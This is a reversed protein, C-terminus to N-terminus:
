HVIIGKFFKSIAAGLDEVSYKIYEEQHSGSRIHSQFLELFSIYAPILYESISIRLEERLNMDPVLWSAQTQYVEEFMANFTKLREKLVRKSVRSSSSGSPYLGEDRFCHFIRDWTSRQYGIVARQVNKTLTELYNNGVMEQLKSCEEITQVIYHVNNMMFLQALSANVLCKSKAELKFQLIEIIWILHVALPTREDLKSFGMDPITVASQVILKAPKSITLKNLKGEYCILQAIYRMVYRTLGNISGSNDLFSSQEHLVTTEFQLLIDRPARTLQMLLEAAQIRISKSSKSQFIRNFDDSLESVSKHFGLIKFLKEPRRSPSSTCTSITKGSTLLQTVTDKVVELFCADDIASGLDGFIQQCLTKESAFLVRGCIKAVLIWQKIKAELEEWDLSRIDNISTNQMGLKRCSKRLFTKRVSKYVEVCKDLCKTSKMRRAINRLDDKKKQNLEICDYHYDGYSLTGDTISSSFTSSKSPNTGTSSTLSILIVRFENELQAM